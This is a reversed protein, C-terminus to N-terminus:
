RLPKWLALGWRLGQRTMGATLTVPLDPAAAFRYDYYFHEAFIAWNRNVATDVRTTGIVSHFTRKADAIDAGWSYRPQVSVKVRSGIFGGMDGNLTNAVFPRPATDIATLGRQYELSSSWRRSLLRRLQVSGTLEFHRQNEISIVTSGSTFGVSTRSSFAFSKNLALGIDLDHHVASRLGAQSGSGLGYGLRLAVASTLRQTLRAAGQQLGFDPRAFYNTYNLNYGFTLERSENWVYTGGAASGFTIQKERGVGYDASAAAFSVDASDQLPAHGLILQYSPSYSAEQSFRFTLRRSALLSAGIGGTHKQTGIQNLSHYYRMASSGSATITARPRRRLFALAMTGGQHARGTLLGDDQLAGTAFRSTDDLGSYMTMAFTFQDARAEDREGPGFLARYPRRTQASAPAAACALVMTVVFLAWANSTLRGM